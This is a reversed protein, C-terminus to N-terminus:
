YGLYEKISTEEWSAICVSEGHYFENVTYIGKYETIVHDLFRKPNETEYGVCPIKISNDSLIIIDHHKQVFAIWNAM